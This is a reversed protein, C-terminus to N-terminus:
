NSQSPYPMHIPYILFPLYVVYEIVLRLTSSYSSSRFISPHITYQRINFFTFNPIPLFLLPISPYPPPGNHLRLGANPELASSSFYIKNM